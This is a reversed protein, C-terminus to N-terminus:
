VVLAEVLEFGGYWGLCWWVEGFVVVCEFGIRNWGLWARGVRWRSGGGGEWGRLVGWSGM